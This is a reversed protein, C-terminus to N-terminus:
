ALKQLRKSIFERVLHVSPSSFRRASEILMIGASLRIKQVRVRLLRGKSVDNLVTCQPFISIGVGARVCEKRGEFNSIKCGISYHSLGNLRLLKDVMETYEYNTSGVAFSASELDTVTILRKNALPHKPAIIFWLPEKRLVTARLSQPPEDSLIIGFDVQSERVADCISRRSEIRLNIKVKPNRKLIDGLIKPLLYSGLSTTAGIRVEGVTGEAVEKLYAGMSASKNLTERAFQLFVRGAETLRLPRDSRDILTVGLSQELGQIQISVAAQSLGLFNAALSFSQRNAVEDFTRLSYLSYDMFFTSLIM